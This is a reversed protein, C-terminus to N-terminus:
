HGRIRTALVAGADPRRLIVFAPSLVTHTAHVRREQQTMM